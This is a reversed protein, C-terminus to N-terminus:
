NKLKPDLADRLGDGILNLSLATLAIAFGPFLVVYSSNRMFAKGDALMAGWEPAPPQIGMGLYCLASTSLIVTAVGMTAQVIIPAIANPMIQSVIIRLDSTGYAKAAEIYDSESVNIIASRVIRTFKPIQSIIMAIMLNRVGTGLAAAIAIALLLLPISMFMDMIRMIVNDLIGGYYATIAGIFSAILMAIVTSGFGIMLSTRGGYIIRSFIDRGYEDTGFWNQMSPKGLMNDLNQQLALTEYDSIIDAFLVLGLIIVLLILGFMASYNRKYRRWIEQLGSKKKKM